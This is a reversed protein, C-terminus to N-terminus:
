GLEAGKNQSDDSPPSRKSPKIVIGDKPDIIKDLIEVRGTMQPKSMFPKIAEASARINALVDKRRQEIDNFVYETWSDPEIFASAPDLTFARATQGWVELSNRLRNLKIVLDLNDSDVPLQPIAPAESLARLREEVERSDGGEAHRRKASGIMLSNLDFMSRLTMLENVFQDMAAMAVAEADEKRKAAPAAVGWYTAAAAALAGLASLSTAALTVGAIWDSM